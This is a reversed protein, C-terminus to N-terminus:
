GHRRFSSRTEWPFRRFFIPPDRHPQVATEIMAGKGPVLVRPTPAARAIHTLNSITEQLIMTFISCRPFWCRLDKQLHENQRLKVPWTSKQEQINKKVSCKIETGLFVRQCSLLCKMCSFFGAKGRTLNPSGAQDLSQFRIPTSTSPSHTCPQFFYSWELGKPLTMNIFRGVFPINTKLAFDTFSTGGWIKLRIGSGVSVSCIEWSWFPESFWDVLHILHELCFGGPCNFFVRDKPFSKGNRFCWFMEGVVFIAVQYRKLSEKPKKFLSRGWKNFYVEKFNLMAGWFLGESLFTTKWGDNKLPSSNFKPPTDDFFCCDGMMATEHHTDVMGSWSARFSLEDARRTTPLRGAFSMSTWSVNGPGRLSNKRISFIRFFMLPYCFNVWVSKFHQKKVWWSNIQLVRRKTLNWCKKPIYPIFEDVVAINRFSPPQIWILEGIWYPLWSLVLTELIQTCTNKAVIDWPSTICDNCIWCSTSESVVM